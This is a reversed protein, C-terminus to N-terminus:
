WSKQRALLLLDVKFFGLPIGSADRSIRGRCSNRVGSVHVPFTPLVHYTSFSVISSVAGIKVKERGYLLTKTLRHRSAFKVLVLCIFSTSVEQMLPRRTIFFYNVQIDNDDDDDYEHDRVM